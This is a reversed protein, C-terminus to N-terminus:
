DQQCGRVEVKYGAIVMNLLRRNSNFWRAPINRSVGVAAAFDMPTMNLEEKLKEELTHRKM